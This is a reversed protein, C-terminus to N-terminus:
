GKSSADGYMVQLEYALHAHEAHELRPDENLLEDVDAHIDEILRADRVVNVFALSSDGHQRYGTLDGEKRLSLDLASLEFGDDITQMAEMRREAVESRPKAMLFLEGRDHGRGIRGRLQHLQALGFHEADEVIMVTANSVDVGVEIVTTSVLIDCEGSTFRQMVEAKEAPRMSGCLLEVVADPFVKDALYAAERRASRLDQVADDEASGVYLREEVEGGEDRAEPTKTDSPADGTAKPEAILPCVIYAQHGAEVANRVAEYATYHDEKPLVHTVTGARSSPATHLFSTQMDGYLTLALSRPIPTATLYLRDVGAGKQALKARQEVGFRHQEDIVALSLDSFVVEDELLAHTGFAVHVTGDALGGTAKKREDGTVSSTLLTWSIGLADLLPGVKARYQQALVETPAMLAAQHGSEAAIFLAGSAVATKGSGVDGFLMRQMPRPLAMDARIESIARRQDETLDFPLASLFRSFRKEDIDQVRGGGQADERNRLTALYLQLFFLEEFRIRARAEEVEDSIRPFHIAEFARARSIVGHKVRLGVPIPDICAQAIVRAEREIREIWATSLASTAHYVPEIRAGEGDSAKSYLPSSMQRFGYVHEVTGQLVVRTGKVLSDAIWPQNFWAAKIVGTEDVVSIEVIRCHNRTVRKEVEDVTGSVCSVEGLATQAIPVVRSFDNYRFPYFCLLDRVTDVGLKSFGRARSASAYKLTSVPAELLRTKDLRALTLSDAVM